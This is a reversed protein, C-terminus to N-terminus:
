LIIRIIFNDNKSYFLLWVFFFCSLFVCYHMLFVNKVFTLFPLYVYNDGCMVAITHLDNTIKSIDDWQNMNLLSLLLDETSNNKDDGDTNQSQLDAIEQLQDGIKIMQKDVVQEVTNQIKTEFQHLHKGISQEILQPLKENFLQQLESYNVILNNLNSNHDHEINSVNNIGSINIDANMAFSDTSMATESLNVVSNGDGAFSSSFNSHGPPSFNVSASGANVNCHLTSLCSNANNEIGSETAEAQTNNQNSTTVTNTNM